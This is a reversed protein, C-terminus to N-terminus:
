YLEINISQNVDLDVPYFNWSSNYPNTQYGYVSGKRYNLIASYIYNTGTAILQITSSVGFNGYVVYTFTDNGSMSFSFQYVGNINVVFSFSKHNMNNFVITTSQSVVCTQINSIYLGTDPYSNSYDIYISQSTSPVYYWQQFLLPMKNGYTYISKIYSGVIIGDSFYFGRQYLSSPGNTCALSASNWGNFTNLFVPDASGKLVYYPTNPSVSPTVSPTPTKTPTISPTPTITPTPTRTPTVSPTISLSPSVSPSPTLTISPTPSIQIPYPDYGRYGIPRLSFPVITLIAINQEYFVNGIYNNNGDLTGSTSNVSSGSYFLNYNGDDYIIGGPIELNFSGPLIGEGAINKSITLGYIVSGTNLPFYKITGQNGLRVIGQYFSSTSIYDSLNGFLFYYPYGVSQTPYFEPYYVFRILNYVLKDYNGNTINDNIPDFPSTDNVGIFINIGYEQFEDNGITWEKNAEYPAIFKDSDLISKFISM